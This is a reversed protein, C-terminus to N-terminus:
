EFAPYSSSPSSNDLIVPVVNSSAMRRCTSMGSPIRSLVNKRESHGIM